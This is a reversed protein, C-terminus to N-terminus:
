AISKGARVIARKHMQLAAAVGTALGAGRECHCEQFSHSGAQSVKEVRVM